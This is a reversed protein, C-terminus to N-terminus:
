FAVDTYVDLKALIGSILFWGNIVVALFTAWNDRANNQLDGKASKLIRVRLYKPIAIFFLSLEIIFNIFLFIGLYNLEGFYGM